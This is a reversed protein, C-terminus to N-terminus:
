YKLFNYCNCSNKQQICGIIKVLITREKRRGKKKKKEGGGKSLDQYSINAGNERSVLVM